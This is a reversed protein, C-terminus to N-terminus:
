HSLSTKYIIYALYGLTSGLGIQPSQNQPGAQWVIKFIRYLSSLYFLGM